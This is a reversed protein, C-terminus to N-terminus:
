KSKGNDAHIKEREWWDSPYRTCLEAGVEMQKEAERQGKKLPLKAEIANNAGEMCLASGLPVQVCLLSKPCHTYILVAWLNRWTGLSSGLSGEATRSIM